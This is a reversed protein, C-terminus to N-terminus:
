SGKVKVFFLYTGTNGHIDTDTNLEELIYKPIANYFKIVKQKPFHKFFVM